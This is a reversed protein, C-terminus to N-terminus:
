KSARGIVINRSIVGNRKYLYKNLEEDM